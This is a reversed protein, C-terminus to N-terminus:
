IKKWKIMYFQNPYKNAIKNNTMMQKKLCINNRCMKIWKKYKNLLLQYNNGGILSWQIIIILKLLIMKFNMIIPYKVEM